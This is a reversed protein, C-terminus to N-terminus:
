RHFREELRTLRTDMDEIKSLLVKFNSDNIRSEAEFRADVAAFRADMYSRLDSIRVDVHRNNFFIGLVVVVLTAVPSVLPLYALVQPNM